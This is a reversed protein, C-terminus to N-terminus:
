NCLKKANSFFPAKATPPAKKHSFPKAGIEFDSITLGLITESRNLWKIMRGNELANAIIDSVIEIEFM